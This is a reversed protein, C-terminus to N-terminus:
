HARGIKSGNVGGFLGTMTRAVLLARYDVAMGCFATAVVFGAYFFLLFRKRDFRDALGAVLFGSVGAAFAYVSVVRSFEKPGITLAPMVIAGLPSLIMFDLVITFQLFALLAIVFREYSTFPRPAPKASEMPPDAM